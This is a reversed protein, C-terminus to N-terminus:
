YSRDWLKGWSEVNTSTDIAAASEEKHPIKEPDWEFIARIATKGSYSYHYTLNRFSHLKRLKNVSPNLVRDTISKTEYTEPVDLLVRLDKILISFHGVTRWQKLLRFLHKAYKGQLSMMDQLEFRTFNATLENFLYLYRESVSITFTQQQLSREYGEFIHFEGAIDHGDDYMYSLHILKHYMSQMVDSYEKATFHRKEKTLEKLQDFTFTVEQSGKDRLKSCVAFFLRLEIDTFNRFVITNLDNNYIVVENAM